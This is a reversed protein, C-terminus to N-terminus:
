RVGLVVCGVVRGGIEIEIVDGVKHGLLALGIPSNHSIVGKAPDTESSGLIQYKKEKGEMNVTVTHGVEINKNQTPIIIEAHNIQYDIKLIASNVGRLRRKALQYEVNESFDGLEALRAVERALAPRKKKLSALEKELAEIKDQTM